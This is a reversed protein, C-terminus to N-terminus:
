LLLFALLVFNILLFSACLLSGLTEATLSLPGGDLVVLVWFLVLCDRRRREPDALFGSAVREEDAAEEAVALGADVETTSKSKSSSLSYAV